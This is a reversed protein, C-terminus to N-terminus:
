GGLQKALDVLGAKRFLEATEQPSYNRVGSETDNALEYTLLAVLATSRALMVRDVKDFTDGFDHYYRVDEPDFPANFTISPVGNLIFPHHDSGLWTKNAVEKRFDWAGLSESWTELFPVLEDFGMANVAIPDGVMDLNLMARVASLDHRETYDISGWLGWEEANFWAIEVTHENVVSHTNLLRALDFLQAVGVGNDLAGQGLDWSDFHGGVVVVQDSRGPFVAILNDVEIDSSRSETEILVRLDSGDELQRVMWSGEEATISYVPLPTPIGDLNGTRALLQGGNVRNILLMGRLGYTDVLTEYDRHTFRMNPAAVGIKGRTDDANLNGFNRSGIFVLGAEVPEHANVYGIAVARVPRPGPDLLTVRDDGRTWGPVTFTERRTTIGLSRLEGELFDMSRTNGETGAMRHGFRTTLTELLEYGQNSLIADGLLSARTTDAPSTAAAFGPICLVLATTLIPRIM